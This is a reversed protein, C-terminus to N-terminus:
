KTLLEPNEYINGIVEIYSCMTKDLYGRSVYDSKDTPELTYTCVNSDWEVACYRGGKKITTDIIDGEYIDVGNKDKLGTYQMLEVDELFESSTYSRFFVEGTNGDFPKDYWVIDNVQYMGVPRHLSTQKQWARFKLERM